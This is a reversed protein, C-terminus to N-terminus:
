APSSASSVTVVPGTVRLTVNLRLAEGVAVPTGCSKVFADFTDTTGDPYTKQWSVIAGSNYLSRLGTVENQTSNAPIWNLLMPCEGPILFSQIFERTRLPSMLHTVDIEESDPNPGGINIVEALENYGGPSGGDAFGIHTGQTSIAQSM